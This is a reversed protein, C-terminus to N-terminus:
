LCNKLLFLFKLRRFCSFFGLKWFCYCFSTSFNVQGKEGVVLIEEDSGSGTSSDDVCKVQSEPDGDLVVCDDDDDVGLVVVESLEEDSMELFQKVWDSDISTEEESTTDIPM